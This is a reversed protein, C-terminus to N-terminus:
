IQSKLDSIESRCDAMRGASSERRQVRSWERGQRFDCSKGYHPLAEALTAKGLRKQLTSRDILKM